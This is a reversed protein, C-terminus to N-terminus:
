KSLPIPLLPRHLNLNPYFRPRLLFHLYCSPPPCRGVQSVSCAGRTDGPGDTAIPIVKVALQRGSNEDFCAYVTGFAGSGLKRGKVLKM